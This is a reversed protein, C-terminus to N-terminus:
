ESSLPLAVTLRTPWVCYGACSPQGTDQDQTTLYFRIQLDARGPKLLPAQYYFDEVTQIEFSPPDTNEGGKLIPLAAETTATHATMPGLISIRRSPTLIAYIVAAPDANDSLSVARWRVLNPSDDKTAPANLKMRDSAQGTSVLADAGILYCYDSSIVTPRDPDQSLDAYNALVSQTDVVVGLDITASMGQEGMPSFVAQPV